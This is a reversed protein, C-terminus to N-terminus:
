WERYLRVRVWGAEFRFSPECFARILTLGRGTETVEFPDPVEPETDFVQSHYVFSMKIDSRSATYGYVVKAGEGHRHANSLAEGAVLLCEYQVEKPTQNGFMLARLPKKGADCFEAIDDLRSLIGCVSVSGEIARQISRLRGLRIAERLDRAPDSEEESVFLAKEPTGNTEM